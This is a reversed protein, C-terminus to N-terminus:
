RFIKNVKKLSNHSCCVQIDFKKLISTHYIVFKDWYTKFENLVVINDRFSIKYIKAHSRIYSIYLHYYCTLKNLDNAIDIVVNCNTWYM